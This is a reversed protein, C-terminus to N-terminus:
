PKGGGEPMLGLKAGVRNTILGTVLSAFCYSWGVAVVGWTLPTMQALMDTTVGPVKAALLPLLVATLSGVVLDSASRRSWNPQNTTAFARLAGGFLGALLLVATTQTFGFGTM